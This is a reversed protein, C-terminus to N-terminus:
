IYLSLSLSTYVYDQAQPHIVVDVLAVHLPAHAVVQIPVAVSAALVSIGSDINRCMLSRM